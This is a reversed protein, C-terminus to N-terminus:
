LGAAIAAELALARAEAKLGVAGLARLVHALTAPSAEALNGEGLSLLALIVTEGIQRAKAASEMRFWIAPNPIPATAREPGALLPQWLAPAVPEELGEKLAYFLAVAARGGDRSQNREFWGALDENKFGQAETSGALQALPMLGALAAAADKNFLASARLIAFWERALDADHALLAARAAEPAFWLLDASAPIRKLVPMFVRVASSYRGGDYALALAQSVAEAQAAPVKQASAARYLLARGLPSSDSKTKSLSNAIDQEPFSISLYLQRLADAPLAGTAEAREAAELRVEIPANPSISIARLIGPNATAVVDKPLAVNAARAMALHLPTPKALTTPPPAASGALRDMIQFFAPDSEGLERLISLNLQAQAADGALAQCFAFAKQWYANKNARVQSAVIACGRANDNALFRIDAELQLLESHTNRGPTAELLAAVAVQDGMDALLRLRIAILSPEKAPGEPVAAITLLLRRMLDRMAPSPAGVPLRPLLAAVVHRPTGQWMQAGLGGQADGLTGATDPDIGQLEDVKVAPGIFSPPAAAPVVPPPSPARSPGQQVQDAPPTLRVPPGSQAWAAATSLGLALGGVAVAKVGVRWREARSASM